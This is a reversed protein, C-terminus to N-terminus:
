EILAAKKQQPDLILFKGSERKLFSFNDEDIIGWSIEKPALEQEKKLGILGKINLAISKAVLSSTIEDVLLIKGQQDCSLAFLPSSFNELPGFVTKGRCSLLPIVKGTVTLTISDKEIKAVKGNVPSTTKKIKEKQRLTLIGKQRDLAYVEGEKPATVERKELLTKKSALIQGAKVTQGLDVKLYHNIKKEVKSPPIGLAKALNVEIQPAKKVVAVTAGKKISEGKKIKIEAQPPLPILFSFRAEM